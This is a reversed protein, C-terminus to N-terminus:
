KKGRVKKTTGVNDKEKQPIGFHKLETLIKRMEGIVLQENYEL